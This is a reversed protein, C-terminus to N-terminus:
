LQLQQVKYLIVNYQVIYLLINYRVTFYMNLMNVSDPSENIAFVQFLM